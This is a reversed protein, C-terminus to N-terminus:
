KKRFTFFKSFFHAAITTEIFSLAIIVPIHYESSLKTCLWVILYNIAILIIAVPYVPNMPQNQM